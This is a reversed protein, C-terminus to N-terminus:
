DHHLPRGVGFGLKAMNMIVNGLIGREVGPADTFFQHTFGKAQIFQGVRPELHRFEIFIGDPFQPKVGVPDNVLDFGVVENLHQGYNMLPPM